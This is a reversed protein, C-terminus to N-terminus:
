LTVGLAALAEIAQDRSVTIHHNPKGVAFSCGHGKVTHLVIASPRDTCGRTKLIAEHIVAPDHGDAELVNWHFAHLKEVYSEMANVEAVRGDLQEKNSDVFLLLNGLRQHAATLCAEWIQGEQSEGDGIICHVRNARGEQRLGLAVGVALSLGQGLSGTTMDIGPTRLRDCHSPLNTDPQNLTELWDMPSFGKLALAAYLAPGAHGKSCILWDREEWQPREPDINMDLTYLVALLEVISMSGGVHGFGRQAFQRITHIRIQRAFERLELLQGNKLM